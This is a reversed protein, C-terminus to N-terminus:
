NIAQKLETNTKYKEPFSNAKTRIVNTRNKNQIQGLITIVKTRNKDQEQGLIMQELVFIELLM